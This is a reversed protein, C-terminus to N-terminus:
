EREITGQRRSDVAQAVQRRHYEDVQSYYQLTTRPNSHGLIAQVVNVPLGADALNQSANKRLGHICLKGTLKIGAKQCHKKFDRPVNNSLWRNKWLEDEEGIEAWKRRVREYRERTLFAYPVKEPAQEQLQTLLDITGPSLPVIRQRKTKVTFPPLTHTGKRNSIIM